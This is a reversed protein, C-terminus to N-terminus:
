VTVKYRAALNRLQQQGQPTKFWEDPSIWREFRERLPGEEAKATFTYHGNWKSQAEDQGFATIWQQPVPKPPVQPLIKKWDLFTQTSASSTPATTSSSINTQLVQESIGESSRRSITNAFLEPEMTREYVTQAQSVSDYHTQNLPCSRTRADCERVNGDESIHYKTM